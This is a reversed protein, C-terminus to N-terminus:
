CLWVFKKKEISQIVPVVVERKTILEMLITKIDLLNNKFHFLM